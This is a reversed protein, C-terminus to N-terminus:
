GVKRIANEIPPYASVFTGLLFNQLTFLVLVVYRYPHEKFLVEEDGTTQIKLSNRKSEETILPLSANSEHRIM